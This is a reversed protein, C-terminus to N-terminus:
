LFDFRLRDLEDKDGVELSLFDLINMVGFLYATRSLSSFLEVVGDILEM